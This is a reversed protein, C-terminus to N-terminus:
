HIIIFADITFLDQRKFFRFQSPTFISYLCSSTNLLVSSTHKYRERLRRCAKPVPPTQNHPPAASSLGALLKLHESPCSQEGAGRRRQKGSDKWTVSPGVPGKKRRREKSLRLITSMYVILSSLFASSSVCNFGDLQTSDALFLSFHSSGRSATGTRWSVTSAREVPFVSCCESWSALLSCLCFSIDRADALIFLLVSSKFFSLFTFFHMSMVLRYTSKIKILVFFGQVSVLFFSSIIDENLLLIGM